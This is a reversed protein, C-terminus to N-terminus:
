HTKPEPTKPKEADDDPENAPIQEEVETILYPFDPNRRRHPTESPAGLENKM